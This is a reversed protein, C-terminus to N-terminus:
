GSNFVEKAIKEAQECIEFVAKYLPMSAETGFSHYLKGDKRYYWGNPDFAHTQGPYTGVGYGMEAAKPHEKGENLRIGAGFEIFLIDEGEVIITGRMMNTQPEYWVRHSKDTTPDSYGSGYEINIVKIGVEALRNTLLICKEELGKQYDNLEDILDQLQSTDLSIKRRM